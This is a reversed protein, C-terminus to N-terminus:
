FLCFVIEFVLIETILADSFQASDNYLWLITTSRHQCIGMLPSIRENMCCTKTGVKAKIESTVGSKAPATVRAGVLQPKTAAPPGAPPRHRTGGVRCTAEFQNGGGVGRALVFNDFRRLLGSLKRSRARGSLM